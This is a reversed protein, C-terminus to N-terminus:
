GSRGALVGAAGHELGPERAPRSEGAGRRDEGGPGDEGHEDERQGSLPPRVLPHAVGLEDQAGGEVELAADDVDLGPQAAEDDGVLVHVEVRGAGANAHRRALRRPEHRQAGRVRGLVAAGDGDAVVDLGVDLAEGGRQDGEGAGGRAERTRAAHGGLALLADVRQTPPERGEVVGLARDEVVVGAVGVVAGLARDEDADDAQGEEEGKRRREAPEDRAAHRRGHAAHGLRGIAQGSVVEIGAHRDPTGGLHGAQRRGEVGHGAREVRRLALQALAVDLEFAQPRAVDRQEVRDEGLRRDPEADVVAVQPRHADVVREGVV